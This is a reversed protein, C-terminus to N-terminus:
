EPVKFFKKDELHYAPDTVLSGKPIGKVRVIKGTYPSVVSEGEVQWKAEPYNETDKEGKVEEGQQPLAVKGIFFKKDEEENVDIVKEFDEPLIEGVWLLDEQQEEGGKQCSSLTLASVLAAASVKSFIGCPAKGKRYNEPKVQDGGECLNLLQRDCQTCILKNGEASIKTPDVTCHVRIPSDQSESM